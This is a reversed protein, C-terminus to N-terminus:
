GINGKAQARRKAASREGPSIYLLGAVKTILREEEADLHGDAYAVDWLMEVMEVRQEAEMGNLVERTFRFMNVTNRGAKDGADLLQAADAAALGFREQLLRTITAREDPGFGDASWAAEVLLAAVSTRLDEADKRPQTAGNLLTKLRALM